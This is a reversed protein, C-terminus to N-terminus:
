AKEKGMNGKNNRQSMLRLIQESTDSNILHSSTSIDGEINFKLKSNHGPDALELYLEILNEANLYFGGVALTLGADYTQGIDEAIFTRINNEFKDAGIM